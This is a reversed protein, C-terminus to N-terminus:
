SLPGPKGDDIVRRQQYLDLIRLQIDTSHLTKEKFLLMIHGSESTNIVTLFQFAM